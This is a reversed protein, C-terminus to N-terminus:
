AVVGVDCTLRARAREIVALLEGVIPDALDYHSHRGNREFTVFGCDRLMRLHHSVNSQTLGTTAVVHGVTAPGARLAELIQHRAPEAICSLFDDCGM